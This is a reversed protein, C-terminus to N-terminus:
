ESRESARPRRVRVVIDVRRNRARGEQSDNSAIPRYEGYGAASVHAPDLSGQELFLQLVATARATSLTWNSTFRTSKIPVNDTHGEVVIELDDRERGLLDALKTLPEISDRHLEAKGSDFFSTEDLSVVTADAERRIRVRGRLEEGILKELENSLIALREARAKSGTNHGDGNRKPPAEGDLIPALKSSSPNGSVGTASPFFEVNFATMMSYQLKGAKRQDVTSIAYLTTFFAFLLTIFDAYSVLWREHNVHAPHKKKRM